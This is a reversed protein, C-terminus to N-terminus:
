RVTRNLRSGTMKGWSELAAPFPPMSKPVYHPKKAPRHTEGYRGQPGDNLQGLLEEQPNGGWPMAWGKRKSLNHNNIEYEVEPLQAYGGRRIINARAAPSPVEVLKQAQQESLLQQLAPDQYNALHQDSLQSAIDTGHWEGLMEREFHRIKQNMQPNGHSQLVYAIETDRDGQMSRENNNASGIIVNVGDQGDDAIMCKSHSYIQNKKDKMLQNFRVHRGAQGGTLENVRNIFYEMTQWQTHLVAKNLAVAAHYKAIKIPNSGTYPTISTPQEPLACEFIFDRGAHHAEVIKKLIEDIIPNSSRTDGEHTPGHFYQNEMLIYKKAKRIVLLHADAIDKSIGTLGSKDRSKKVKRADFEKAYRLDVSSTTISSIVRLTAQKPANRNAGASDQMNQQIAGSLTPASHIRKYAGQWARRLSADALRERKKDPFLPASHHHWRGTLNTMLDLISPHDTIMSHVDKWYVKAGRPKRTRTADDQRGQMIDLGGLMVKGLEPFAQIKQHDSLHFNFTGQRKTRRIFIRDKWPAHPKETLSKDLAQLDRINKAPNPDYTNKGWAMLHVNVGATAAKKLWAGLSKDGLKESLAISWGSLIITAPLGQEARQIQAQINHLLEAFAGTTHTEDDYANNFFDVQDASIPHELYLPNSLLARDETTSNKLQRTFFGKRKTATTTVNKRTHAIIQQFISSGVDKKRITVTKKPGVSKTNKIMGLLRNYSSRFNIQLFNMYFPTNMKLNRYILALPRNPPALLLQRKLSKLAFLKLQMRLSYKRGTKSALYANIKKLIDIREQPLTVKISTEKDDSVRKKAFARHKDIEAQNYPVSKSEYLAASFHHLQSEEERPLRSIRRHSFDESLPRELIIRRLAPYKQERDRARRTFHALDAFNFRADADQLIRSASEKNQPSLLQEILIRAYLCSRSSPNIAEVHAVYENLLAVYYLRTKWNEHVAPSLRLSELSKLMVGFDYSIAKKQESSFTKFPLTKEPLPNHHALQRQIYRNFAM